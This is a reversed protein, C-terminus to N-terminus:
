RRARPAPRQTTADVPAPGVGSKRICERILEDRLAQQQYADSRLRATPVDNTMDSDGFSSDMRMVQGRERYNVIREAEATCVRQLEPTGGASAAARSSPPQERPACAAILLLLPMLRIM